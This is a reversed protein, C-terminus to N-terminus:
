SSPGFLTRFRAIERTVMVDFTRNGYLKVAQRYKEGYPFWTWVWSNDSPASQYLTFWKFLNGAILPPRDWDKVPDNTQSPRPFMSWNFEKSSRWRQRWATLPDTTLDCPFLSPHSGIWHEQSYRGAGHNDIGEVDPFAISYLPNEKIKEQRQRFVEDM